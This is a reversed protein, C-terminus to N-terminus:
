RQVPCGDDGQPDGAPLSPHNKQDSLQVCHSICWQLHWPSCFFPHPCGVNDKSKTETRVDIQRVQSALAITLHGDSAQTMM